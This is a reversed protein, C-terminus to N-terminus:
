KENELCNLKLAERSEPTNKKSNKYKQITKFIFNILQIGAIISYAISIGFQSYNLKKIYIIEKDIEYVEHYAINTDNDHCTKFDEYDAIKIFSLDNKKILYFNIFVIVIKSIIKGFSSTFHYLDFNKNTKLLSVLSVFVSVLFINLLQLILYFLQNEKLSKFNTMFNNISDQLSSNNPCNTVIKQRSYLSFNLNEITKNFYFFYSNTNNVLDWIDNEQYFEKLSYSDILKYRNDFFEKSSNDKKCGFKSKITDNLLDFPNTKNSFRSRDLCPVDASMYFDIPMRSSNIIKKSFWLFSNSLNLRTFDNNISFNIDSNITINTIPCFQSDNNSCDNTNNSRKICILKNRWIKMPLEPIMSINIINDNSHEHNELFYKESKLNYYGKDSSLFTTNSIEEYDNPCQWYALKIDVINYLNSNGFVNYYNQKIKITTKVAIISLIVMIFSLVILIIDTVITILSQERKGNKM